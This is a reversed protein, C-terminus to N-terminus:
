ETGPRLLGQKLASSEQLLLGFQPKQLDMLGNMVTPLVERCGQCFSPRVCRLIDLIGLKRHRNKQMSRLIPVKLSVKEHSARLRRVREQGCIEAQVENEESKIPLHKKVRRQWPAEQKKKDHKYLETGVKFYNIQRRM